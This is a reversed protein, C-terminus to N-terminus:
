NMLGFELFRVLIARQRFRQEKQRTGLEAEVSLVQVLSPARQVLTTLASTRVVCALRM